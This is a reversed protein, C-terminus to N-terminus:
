SSSASIASLISSVWIACSALFTLQFTYPDDPSPTFRFFPYIDTQILEDACRDPWILERQNPGFHLITLWGLITLSNYDCPDTSEGLFGVMTVNQALGRVYFSTAVNEAHDEWPQPYGV